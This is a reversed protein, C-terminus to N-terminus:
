LQELKESCLCKKATIVIDSLLLVPGFFGIEMLGRILHADIPSQDRTDEKSRQYLAFCIRALGVIVGVVALAVAVKVTVVGALLGVAGVLSAYGAINAACAVPNSSFGFAPPIKTM